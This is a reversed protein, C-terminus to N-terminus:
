NTPRQFHKHLENKSMSFITPRGHVCIYRNECSLLDTVLKQMELETLKDGAKVAGKCAIQSHIFEYLQQRLHAPDLNEHEEIFAVTEQIINKLAQQQIRPPATTITISSTNITISIGQQKFLLDHDKILSCQHSALNITEPFLLLTGECESFQKKRAEYIIREHAAHQDIILLEGHQELIIYTNFLQGIIRALNQAQAVPQQAPQYKNSMSATNDDLPSAADTKMFHHSFNIFPEKDGSMQPNFHNQLTHIPRQVMSLSGTPKSLAPLTSIQESPISSLGKKYEPKGSLKNNVHQELTKIIQQTVASCLTAPKLFRVEEKKPHINVDVMTPDVTIFIIGAPFRGTPLVNQYGKILAKSLEYNKIWRNNVFFIINSRNYQWAQHHSLAGELSLWPAPKVTPLDIMSEARNVGWVQVIRERISNAPPANLVFEGDKFVRVHVSFHSLIFTHILALCQNWETDNSKLFKKRVPITEFLDTIAITTGPQCAIASNGQFIGHAYTIRTGLGDNRQDSQHQTILEVNGVAAISALAEGRFGYSQITELEDISSLKSTAHPHFCLLADEPSMGCGNDTIKILDKGGGDITITISTAGADLSNEILEKLIHAPREIVEGAAIKQAQEPPLINITKM